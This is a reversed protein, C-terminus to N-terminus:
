TPQPPEDRLQLYVLTWAIAPFISTVKLGVFIFVFLLAVFSITGFFNVPSNFSIIVFNILIFYAIIWYLIIGFLLLAGFPLVAKIKSFLLKLSFPYISKTPISPVCLVVNAISNLIYVLTLISFGIIISILAWQSFNEKTIIRTSQLVSPLLIGIVTIWVFKRIISHPLSRKWFSVINLDLWRIKMTPNPNHVGKRLIATRYPSPDMILISQFRWIFKWSRKLISWINM